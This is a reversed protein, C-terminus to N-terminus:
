TKFGLVQIEALGSIGDARWYNKPQLKIYRGRVFPVSLTVSYDTADATPPAPAVLGSAVPALLAPRSDVYIDVEKWGRHYAGPQNHNWIRIGSVVCDRGLDLVIFAQGSLPYRWSQEPKTSAWQGDLVAAARGNEEEGSFRSLSVKQLPMQPIVQTVIGLKRANVAVDTQPASDLPGALAQLRAALGGLLELQQSSLADNVGRLTLLDQQRHVEITHQMASLVASLSPGDQNVLPLLAIATQPPPDVIGSLATLAATRQEDDQTGLALELLPEGAGAQNIKQLEKIAAPWVEKQEGRSLVGIMVPIARQPQNLVRLMELANAALTPDKGGAAEIVLPWAADQEAFLQEQAARVDARKSSALLGMATRLRLRARRQEEVLKKIEGAQQRQQDSPAANLVNDAARTAAELDGKNLKQRSEALLAIRQAESHKEIQQSLEAELAVLRAMTTEDLEKAADRVETLVTKAENLEGAALRAQADDLQKNWGALPDSAPEV